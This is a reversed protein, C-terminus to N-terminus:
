TRAQGLAPEFIRISPQYLERRNHIQGMRRRLVELAGRKTAFRFVAFPDVVIGDDRSFRRVDRLHRLHQVFYRVLSNYLDSGM